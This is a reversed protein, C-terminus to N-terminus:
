LSPQLASRCRIAGAALEHARLRGDEDPLRDGFDLYCDLLLECLPVARRTVQPRVGDKLLPSDGLPANALSNARERAEAALEHLRATDGAPARSAITELLHALEAELSAVTAPQNGTSATRERHFAARRERRLTAVHGLEEKAMAEAAERLEHTTAHAAVYTWFLFAREENRVAMSFARYASLLEPAIESAGEDDFTEGLDWRIKSLDPSHGIMRESWHVVSDLHHSEEGALLDFVGALNPRGERRMREALGSYEAMAEQEMAYAIALLEEMSEVAMFPEHKLLSM